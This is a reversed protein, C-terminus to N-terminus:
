VRFRLIEDQSRLKELGSVRLDLKACFKALIEVYGVFHLIAVRIKVLFRMESFVRLNEPHFKEEVVHEFNKSVTNLTSSKLIDEDLLPLEAFDEHLLVIAVKSADCSKAGIVKKLLKRYVNNTWSQENEEEKNSSKGFFELKAGPIKKGVALSKWCSVLARECPRREACIPATHRVAAGDEAFVLVAEGTTSYAQTPSQWLAAGVSRVMADRRGWWQSADRDPKFRNKEMKGDVTLVFSVKAVNKCLQKSVDGDNGSAGSTSNSSSTALGPFGRPAFYDRLLKARLNAPAKAVVLELLRSAAPSSALYDVSAIDLEGKGSSPLNLIAFLLSKVQDSSCIKILLQISASGGTSLVLQQRSSDDGRLIKVVCEDVGALCKEFSASLSSSPDGLNDDNQASNNYKKHKGKPGEDKVPIRGSLLMVLSRAVHSGCSDAMIWHWGDEIGSMADVVINVLRDREEPSGQDHLEHQADTEDLNAIKLDQFLRSASSLIVSQLVHSGYQHCCCEELVVKQLLCKCLRMFAGMPLLPILRDLLRSCRQHMAVVSEKGQIEELVNEVLLVAQEPNEKLMSEANKLYEFLSLLDEQNNNNDAM